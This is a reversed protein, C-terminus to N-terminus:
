TMPKRLEVLLDVDSTETQEGRAVSGFLALSGILWGQLLAAKHERLLNLYTERSKM